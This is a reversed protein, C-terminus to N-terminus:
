RARTGIIRLLTTWGLKLVQALAASRNVPEDISLGGRMTLSGGVPERVAVADRRKRANSAAPSRFQRM